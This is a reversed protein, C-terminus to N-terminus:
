ATAPGGEEEANWHNPNLGKRPAAAEHGPQHGGPRLAPPVRRSGSPPTTSTAGGTPGCVDHLVLVPLGTGHRRAGEALLRLENVVTYWNHDGDILAADIPGLTPLVDLSLGRHFHYRGAFAREHETPDFQPEPDIVHLEADAGLDDLMRVTTEGRM